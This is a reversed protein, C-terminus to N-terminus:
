FRGEQKLKLGRRLTYFETSVYRLGLGLFFFIIGVIAFRPDFNNKLTASTIFLVPGIIMIMMGGGNELWYLWRPTDRTGKIRDTFNTQHYFLNNGEIDRRFQKRFYFILDDDSNQRSIRYANLEVLVWIAPIFWIDWLSVGSITGFSLFSIMFCTSSSFMLMPIIIGMPHRFKLALWKLYFWLFVTFFVSTYFTPWGYESGYKVGIHMLLSGLPLVGFMLASAELFFKLNQKEKQIKEIDLFIRKGDKAKM